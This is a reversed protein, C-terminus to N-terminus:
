SVPVLGADQSSDHEEPDLITPTMVGATDIDSDTTDDSGQDQPSAAFGDPIDVEIHYERYYLNLFSYGGNDDTITFGVETGDADFLRM